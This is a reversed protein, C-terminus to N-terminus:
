PAGAAVSRRYADLTRVGDEDYFFPLFAYRRGETVPAVEHLLSCSFVMAGGVPPRHLTRGYEPFRLDGGEFDGNLNISCAFKRNATQRTTNDRHARFVGGEAADYCAILDREIQTVEFQFAQAILPFLRRTLAQRTEEILDPDRVTVDRRTKHEHMVARTRDGFDQMVGSSTGGVHEYLAILRLCLDADFVRPALLVPAVMPAGAHEAPAPLSQVLAFMRPTDDISAGALLRLTPDLLVWGPREAGGADLAGYLRSVAGDADIFWRLGRMDRLGALMAPDRAVVFASARADDFHRQHTSLAKLAVGRRDVDSPLFLLLVYRGAATELSFEPESLTPATFWPAPEFLRLPM